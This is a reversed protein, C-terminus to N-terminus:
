WIHPRPTPGIPTARVNRAPEVVGECLAYLLRQFRVKENVQSRNYAGWYTLEGPPPAPDVPIPVRAHNSEPLPLDIAPEVLGYVVAAKQNQERAVQLAYIHKCTRFPDPCGCHLGDEDEWIVYHKGPKSRSPIGWGGATKVIPTSAAIAMGRRQRGEDGDDPGPWPAVTPFQDAISM